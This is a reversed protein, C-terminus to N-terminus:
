RFFELQLPSEARISVGERDRAPAYRARLACAVAAAGFGFGPDKTARATLAKGRADVVVQLVVSQRDIKADDAAAPWPCSWDRDALALRRSRDPADVPRPAEAPRSPGGPGIPPGGAPGTPGGGGGNPDGDLTGAGAAYRTATLDIPGAPGPALADPRGRVPADPHSAAPRSPRAALKPDPAKAPSSPSPTPVPETTAVPEPPPKAPAPPPAKPLSIPQQNRLEERIKHAVEHGWAHLDPEFAQALVVLGGHLALGLLLGV